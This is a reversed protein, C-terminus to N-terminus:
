TRSGAFCIDYNSYRAIPMDSISASPAVVSSVEIRAAKTARLCMRRSRIGNAQAEYM